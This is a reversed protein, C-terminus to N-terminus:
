IYRDSVNFKRPFSVAVLGEIVEKISGTGSGTVSATATWPTCVDRGPVSTRSCDTAALINDTGYEQLLMQLM